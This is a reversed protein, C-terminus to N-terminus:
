IMLAANYPLENENWKMGDYILWKTAASYKLKDGYQAMFVRAQGVDTYDSPEVTQTFEQVM